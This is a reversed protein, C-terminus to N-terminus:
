KKTVRISIRRNKARGEETDNSAVPFQPGYGEAEVRGKDIGAAVVAAMVAKARDDSLKTNIKADGTNDTYGGIKVSATANAKLIDAIGKVAAQAEPTLEASGTKFSLGPFDVWANKDIEKTSKIQEILRAEDRSPAATDAVRVVDSPSKGSTTLPLATAAVSSAAVAVVACSIIKLCKM